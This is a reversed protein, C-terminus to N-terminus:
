YAELPEEPEGLAVAQVTYAFIATGIAGLVFILAVLMLDVPGGIDRFGSNTIWQMFLIAAVGGLVGVVQARVLRKSDLGRDRFLVWIFAATVLLIALVLLWFLLPGLMEIFVSVFVMIDLEQM